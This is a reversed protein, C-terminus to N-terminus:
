TTAWSPGSSACAPTGGLSSGDVSLTVSYPVDGAKQKPTRLPLNALKTGAGLNVHRGLISDGVYAFHGAEAGAFVM